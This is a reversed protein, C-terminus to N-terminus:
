FFIISVGMSLCGVAVWPSLREGIRAAKWFFGRFRFGPNDFYLDIAILNSVILSQCPSALGTKQELITPFQMKLFTCTCIVLLVVTLFSHFNFLASM